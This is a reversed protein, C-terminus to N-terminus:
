RAAGRGAPSSLYLQARHGEVAPHFLSQDGVGDLSQPHPASRRRDHSCLAPGCSM